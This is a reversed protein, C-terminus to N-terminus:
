ELSSVPVLHLKWRFVFFLLGHRAVGAAISSSLTDPSTESQLASVGHKLPSLTLEPSLSVDLLELQSLM